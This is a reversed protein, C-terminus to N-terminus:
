IDDIDMMIEEIIIELSDIQTKNKSIKKKSAFNDQDKADIVYKSNSHQESLQKIQESVSTM